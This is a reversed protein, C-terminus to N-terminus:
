HLTNFTCLPVFNIFQRQKGQEKENRECQTNRTTNEIWEANIQEDALEPWNWGFDYTKKRNTQIFYNSHWIPTM